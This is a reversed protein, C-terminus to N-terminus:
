IQQPHPQVLTRSRKNITSNITGMRFTLEMVNESNDNRKYEITMLINLNTRETDSVCVEIDFVALVAGVTFCVVAISDLVLPYRPTM